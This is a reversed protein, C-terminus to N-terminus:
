SIKKIEENTCGMEKLFNVTDSSTKSNYDQIKGTLGISHVKELPNSKGLMNIALISKKETKEEQTLNEWETDDKILSFNKEALKKDEESLSYFISKKVTEIKESNMKKIQSELAEIREVKENNENILKNKEEETMNKLKKFSLEKSKIKNIEDTLKEIKDKYEEINKQNNDEKDNNIDEKDNIEEKDNNIDEKSM